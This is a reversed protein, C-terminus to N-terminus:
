AIAAVAEARTGAGLKASASAVARLVTWRSLGLRAAIERDRLGDAVLGLIQQERATLPTAVAAESRVARREGLLRLTRHVRALLPAAGLAELRPELAILLEVAPERQGARRLAEGAAWRCRLEGRAHRGAWLEAAEAFLAAAGAADGSAFASLARLEMSGGFGMPRDPAIQRWASPPLGLEFAAWAGAIEVFIRAQADPIERAHREAAAVAEAHRGAYLELDTLAWLAYGLSWEAPVSDAFLRDVRVRAEDLRGLDMLVQAMYWDNDENLDAAELGEGIELAEKFRGLHWAFGMARSALFRERGPLGLARARDRMRWTLELGEDARGEKLLEFTLSSSAWFATTLDGAALAEDVSTALDDLGGPDNAQCRAAGLVARADARRVGHRRALHDAARALELMGATAGLETVAARAREVHLGVEVDVTSPDGPHLRGLGRDVARRVEPFEGAARLVRALGLLQGATLDLEAVPGVTRMAAEPELAEVYAEAAEFRLDLAAGADGGSAEAAVELHAAREMAGHAAAAALLAQERARELEGAALHHRAADGPTEAVRALRAHIRRREDPATGEVAADGLLDHRVRLRGDPEERALGAALLAPGAAGLAGPALPRGALALSVMAERTGPQLSFLRTRVISALSADDGRSRALEELLLPNGGARGAARRVAAAGLDPRARQVIEASTAASLGDLRVVEFSPLADLVAATSPAADRLAVVLGVRGALREVVDITLPDAWQVDDVFVIGDAVARVVDAAARPGDVVGFSRGIARELALLPMWSLAALGGGEFSRRGSAAIAARAVTTKGIGPEGVVLVPTDAELLEAIRGIEADRGLVGGAALGPTM